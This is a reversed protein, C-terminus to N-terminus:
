GNLTIDTAIDSRSARALIKTNMAGYAQAIVLVKTYAPDDPTRGKRYQYVHMNM